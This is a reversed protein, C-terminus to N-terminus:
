LASSRVTQIPAFCLCLYRSILKLYCDLLISTMHHRNLVWSGVRLSPASFVFCVKLLTSLCDWFYLTWLVVYRCFVFSLCCVWVSLALIMLILCNFYPLPFNLTQVLCQGYLALSNQLLSHVANRTSYLQSTKWNIALWSVLKLWYGPM